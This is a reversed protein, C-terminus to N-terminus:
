SPPPQPPESSQLFNIRQICNNAQDTVYMVDDRKSDMCICKLGTATQRDGSQQRDRDRAREAGRCVRKVIGDKGIRRVQFTFTDSVYVNGGSDVTVAHPWEFTSKLGPGDNYGSIGTGALTRVAGFKDVTRVRHNSRDAVYAVGAADVAVGVPYNFAARAGNGDTAGQVCRGALTTVMGDATVRRICHNSSDAVLLTGDPAAAIGFPYSFAASAGVGDAHGPRGSGAITVVSGNSAIRRITHSGADCVYITGSADICV